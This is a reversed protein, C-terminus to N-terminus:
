LEMFFLMIISGDPLQEQSIHMPLQMIVENKKGKIEISYYGNENAQIKLEKGNLLIKVNQRTTWIPCRIKLVFSTKSDETSVLLKTEPKEPFTNQQIIKVKKEKSKVESPIM